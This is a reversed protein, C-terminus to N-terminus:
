HRQLLINIHLKNFMNAFQSFQKDTNQKRLRQPFLVPPLYPKVPAKKVPEPESELEAEPHRILWESLPDMM